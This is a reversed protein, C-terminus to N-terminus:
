RDGHVHGGGARVLRDADMEAGCTPCVPHEEAWQRIRDMVGALEREASKVQALETEVRADAARIEEALEALHAVEHLAPPQEMSGLLVTEAEFADVDDEAGQLATILEELPSTDRQDPPESMRGYIALDDKLRTMERLRDAIDECMTSLSEAPALHPPASLTQVVGYEKKQARLAREAAALHSVLGEVATTDALPPPKEVATLVGIQDVVRQVETTRHEMAEINTELSELHEIRELLNAHQTEVGELTTDLDGTPELCELLGTLRESRAQLTRREVRRESVKQRHKEQMKVLLAADSSSAFFSAVHTGPKDLLFLPSKQSAFHVDFSDGERPSPVTPLRLFDHLDDPVGRGLRHVERGNVVYSVTGRQRRWELEYGEDTEVKVRCDSEGHKVMFDGSANQCVTRLAVVVASKGCNNPGVLVTLGDAPEIVTHSHRMFNKIEVRRIM